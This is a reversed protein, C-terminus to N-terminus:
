FEFKLKIKKQKKLIRIKKLKRSKMSQQENKSIFSKGIGSTCLLPFATDTSHLSVSLDCFDLNLQIVGPICYSSSHELNNKERSSLSILFWDIVWDFEILSSSAFSM